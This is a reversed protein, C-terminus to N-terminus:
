GAAPEKIEGDRIIANMHVIMKRMCAVIAVMKRKGQGILRNYFESIQANYQIAVIASMFLAARAKKRGSFKTPIHGKMKGSDQNLPAVGTLAAIQRSELLGLEPINILLNIATTTGVGKYKTLLSVKKGFESNKKVYEELEKHLKDIKEDLFKLTNEIEERIVRFGPSQVRNKESARIRKLESIYASLQQIHNECDTKATYLELKDGKAQGYKALMEADMKDTKAYVGESDKFRKFNRNNTKHILFGMKLLLEVCSNEYGGTNELVVLTDATDVDCFLKEIAEKTNQIDAWKATKTFYVCLTEKAVDIGIFHNM